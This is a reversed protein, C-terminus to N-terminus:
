TNRRVLAAQQKDAHPVCAHQSQNVGAADLRKSPDARHGFKEPDCLFVAVLLADDNVPPPPVRHFIGQALHQQLTMSVSSRLPKNLKQSKETKRVWALQKVHHKPLLVQTPTVNIINSVHKVYQPPWLNPMALPTNAVKDPRALQQLQTHRMVDPSQFSENVSAVVRPLCNQNTRGHPIEFGTAHCLHETM